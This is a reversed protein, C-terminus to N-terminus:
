MNDTFSYFTDETVIVHDLVKIELIDGAKFLKETLKKDAESPNSNGSPHNHAIILSVAGHLIAHRFIERPEAVTGRISGMSVQDIYKVQGVTNLAIAFLYEKERDFLHKKALIQNIIKRVDEPRKIFIKGLKSLNVLMTSLKIALTYLMFPHLFYSTEKFIFM